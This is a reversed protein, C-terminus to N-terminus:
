VDFMTEIKDRKINCKKGQLKIDGIMRQKEERM